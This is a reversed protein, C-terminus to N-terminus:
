EGGATGFRAEGHGRKGHDITGGAGRVTACGQVDAGHVAEEEVDTEPQTERDGAAHPRVQRQQERAREGRGAGETTRAPV